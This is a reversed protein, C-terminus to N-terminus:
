PVASLFMGGAAIRKMDSRAPARLTTSTLSADCTTMTECGSLTAASMTSAARYGPMGRRRRAVQLQSLDRHRGDVRTFQEHTNDGGGDVREVVLDAAAVIGLGQRQWGADPV